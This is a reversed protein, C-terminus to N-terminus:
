PNTAFADNQKRHLLLLGELRAQHDWKCTDSAYVPPPAIPALGGQIQLIKLYLKLAWHTSYEGGGLFHFTKVGGGRSLNRYIGHSSGRSSNRYIGMVPIDQYLTDVTRPFSAWHPSFVGRGRLVMAKVQGPLPSLWRNVGKYSGAQM